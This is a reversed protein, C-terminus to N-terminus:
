QTLDQKNCETTIQYSRYRKYETAGMSKCLNKMMQNDDAILSIELTKYGKKIAYLMIKFACFHGAVTNKFEDTVGLVIFRLRKFPYKKIRLLKFIGFPLLRGKKVHKFIENADPIAVGFAMVKGDKEIIATLEPDLIMKLQKFSIMFEDRNFPVFNSGNVTEFQNLIDVCRDLEGDIDNFDVTRMTAGMRKLLRPLYKPYNEPSLLRSDKTKNHVAAVLDPSEYALFDAQKQFGYSELLNRYYPPQYTLAIPAMTDYGEILLGLPEDTEFEVPGRMNKINREVLWAKAKNFLAHAVETDDICEFQGFFGVSENHYENHARSTYVCLRGAINNDKYASLFCVEGRKYFPHKKSMTARVDLKLPPVYNSHEKYIEDAFNRYQRKQKATKAETVISM